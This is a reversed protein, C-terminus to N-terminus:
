FILAGADRASVDKLINNEGLLKPLEHLYFAQVCMSFDHFVDERDRIDYNEIDMSVNVKVKTGNKLTGSTFFFHTPDLTKVDREEQEYVEIPLIKVESPTEGSPLVAVTLKKGNKTIVSSVVMIEGTDKRKFHVSHRM